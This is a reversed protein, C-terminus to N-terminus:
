FHVNMGVKFTQMRLQKMLTYPGGDNYEFHATDTGLDFYQYEAKLSLRDTFAWEVGGGVVWGWDCQSESGKFWTNPGKKNWNYSHADIDVKGWAAGATGYILFRDQAVGVRGRITGLAKVNINYKTKTGGKDSHSFYYSWYSKGKGTIDSAFADAEIGFVISNTQFNYGIQGGGFVGNFDKSHGCYRYTGHGWGTVMSGFCDNFSYWDTPDNSTPVGDVISQFGNNMFEPNLTGTAAGVSGGAYFGTWDYTSGQAVAYSPAAMISAALAVAATSPLAARAIARLMLTTRM